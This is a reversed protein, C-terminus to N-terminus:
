IKNSEFIENLDDADMSSRDASLFACGDRSSGTTAQNVDPAINQGGYQNRHSEDKGDDEARQPSKPLAEM